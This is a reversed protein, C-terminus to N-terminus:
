RSRDPRRTERKRDRRAFELKLRLGLLNKGDLDHVADDADSRYFFLVMLGRDPRDSRPRQAQRSIGDGTRKLNSGVQNVYNAVFM